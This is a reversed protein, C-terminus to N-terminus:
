DARTDLAVVITKALFRFYSDNRHGWVPANRDRSGSSLLSWVLREALTGGALHHGQRAAADRILGYVRRVVARYAERLDIWTASRVGRAPGGEIEFQVAFDRRLGSMPESLDCLLQELSEHELAKAEQLEIDLERLHQLYAQALLENKTGFRAYITAPAVNLGDALGRINLSAASHESLYRRTATLVAETSM